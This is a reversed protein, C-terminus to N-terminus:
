RCGLKYMGHLFDLVNKLDTILPNVDRQCLYNEWQRLVGEYRSTTTDRWSLCIIDM